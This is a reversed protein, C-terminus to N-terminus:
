RREGGTLEEGAAEAGTGGIGQQEDGGRVRATEDASPEPQAQLQVRFRCQEAQRGM